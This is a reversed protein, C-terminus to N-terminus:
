LLANPPKFLGNDEFGEEEPGTTGAPGAAGGEAEEARAAKEPLLPSPDGHWTITLSDRARTAAVFMLSRAKQVEQAYRTPDSARLRELGARPVLGECMAAITVHQYELGKFRHLTGVHVAEEFGAPPGERGLSAARVGGRNLAYQVADVEEKTPAAVAISPATDHPANDRLDKAWAVIADCEAAWTRSGRFVPRPGRLVSRYGSLTDTGDDLDDWEEEGLLGLASGLIERTTRYSLTLRSSRGRINIGLAGLSVRNDYIRQHTDGVLFIDNEGQDVTARLLTWDASSLDQAEDVVVHEYRFRLRTSSEDARHLFQGGARAERDRNELIKAAREGEIRAAAQAIQRYTWVGKEELRMTFREVLQWIEARQARSIRQGRGARRARFYESRTRIGQGVIVQNWEDELFEATWRQEGLETLMGRWERTVQSDSIPRRGHGGQGGENVIRRSLSDINVIDVRDLVTQGALDRLRLRLDAALNTNYTTLLVAKNRGTPLNEVLNKVRHLAVITKGTGPGGSVRAPGRYTRRVLKEQTPHLFVKWASFDDELVERLGTDSTTVRTSPRALAATFDAPDVPGEATVPATIDELVEDFGRGDALALLVEETHAPAGYVLELLASEGRVALAEEVLGEAVGLRRLQEASYAAFLPAGHSSPPEAAEAAPAPEPVPEPKVEPEAPETAEVAPAPKALGEQPAEEAADRSEVIGFIELAGTVKNVEYRFRDLNDYVHQRKRVGVLIYDGDGVHFLLARYDANVRASHLKDHGKLQQFKLGTATPNERFKYQFDYLAGKVSQPLKRIQKDAKDLLRLTTKGPVSM